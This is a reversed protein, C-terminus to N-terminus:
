ATLVSGSVPSLSVFWASTLLRGSLQSLWGPVGLCLFNKLFINLFLFYVLPVKMLSFFNQIPLSVMLLHSFHKCVMYRVLNIDLIFSSHTYEIAFFCILWNFVPCLVRISVEAFFTYSLGLPVHFSNLM